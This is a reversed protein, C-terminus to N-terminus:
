KEEVIDCVEMKPEEGVYRATTEINMAKKLAMENLILNKSTTM